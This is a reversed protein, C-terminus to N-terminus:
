QVGVYTKGQQIATAIIPIVNGKAITIFNTHPAFSGETADNAEDYWLGCLRDANVLSGDMAKIWM